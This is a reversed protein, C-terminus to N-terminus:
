GCGRNGPGVRDRGYRGELLEFLRPQQEAFTGWLVTGDIVTIPAVRVGYRTKATEAVGPAAIDYEEFAIGHLDFFRKVAACDPCGLSTYLLVESFAM